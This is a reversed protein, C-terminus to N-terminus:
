RPLPQNLRDCEDGPGVVRDHAEISPLLLDFREHILSALLAIEHLDKVTRAVPNLLLLRRLDIFQQEFKHAVM